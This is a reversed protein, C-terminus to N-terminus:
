MRAFRRGVRAGERALWDLIAVDLADFEVPLRRASGEQGSPGGPQVVIPSRAIAAVLAGLDTHNKGLAM